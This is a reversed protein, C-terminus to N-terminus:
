RQLPVECRRVDDVDPIGDIDEAPPLEGGHCVRDSGPGGDVLDDNDGGTLSLDNGAGGHLDDNDQPLQLERV